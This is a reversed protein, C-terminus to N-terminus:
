GSLRREIWLQDVGGTTRERYNDPDAKEQCAEKASALPERRLGAQGFALAVAAASLAM